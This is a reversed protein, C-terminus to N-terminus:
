EGAFAKTTIFAVFNKVVQLFAARGNLQLTASAPCTGNPPTSESNHNPAYSGPNNPNCDTHCQPDAQNSNSGPGVLGDDFLNDNDNDIGDSCQPLAPNVTFQAGGSNYATSHVQGHFAPMENIDMFLEHTGYNVVSLSTSFPYTVSVQNGSEFFYQGLSCGSGCQMNVQGVYPTGAQGSKMIQVSVGTSQNIQTPPTFIAQADFTLRDEHNPNGPQGIFISM